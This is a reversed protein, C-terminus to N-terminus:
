RLGIWYRPASTDIDGGGSNLAIYRYYQRALVVMDYYPFDGLLLSPVAITWPESNGSDSSKEIRVAVTGGPVTTPADLRVRLRAGATSLTPIPMVIGSAWPPIEIRTRAGSTSIVLRHIQYLYAKDAHVEEDDWTKPSGDDEVLTIPIGDRSIHTAGASSMVPTWALRVTTPAIRTIAVASYGGPDPYGPTDQATAIWRQEPGFVGTLTEAKIIVARKLGPNTPVPIPIRWVVLGEMEGPGFTYNGERPTKGEPRVLTVAKYIDSGTPPWQIAVADPANSRAWIHVKNIASGIFLWPWVCGDVKGDFFEGGYMSGEGGMGISATLIDSQPPKAGKGEVAIWRRSYGAVNGRTDFTTVARGGDTIEHQIRTVAHWQPESYYIDNPLLKYVDYIDAAWNYPATFQKEAKPQALDDIASKIFDTAEPATNIQSTAAERFEFYRRGYKNISAQVNYTIEVVAKKDSDQYWISGVNRIDDTKERFSVTPEMRDKDYTFDESGDLMTADRPPLWLTLAMDEGVWRYRVNAGVTLQALNRIAEMLKVRDQTYKSSLTVDGAISVDATLPPASTEMTDYLVTQIQDELLVGTADYLRESEIQAIVLAHGIDSVSLSLDDGSHQVEVVYGDFVKHETASGGVLDAVTTYWRIRRMGEILPAPDGGDDVNAPSTTMYPSISVKALPSIQIESALTVSGNWTPSDIDTGWSVSKLFNLGSFGVGSLNTLTKWTGDINQIQLRTAVSREPNNLVAVEAGTPTRM